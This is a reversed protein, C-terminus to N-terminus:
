RATGADTGVHVPLQNTVDVLFDLAARLEVQGFEGSGHISLMGSAARFESCRSRNDHFWEAFEPRITAPESLTLQRPLTQSSLTTGPMPLDAYVVVVWKRRVGSSVTQYIADYSEAIFRAYNYAAFRLGRYEGSFGTDIWSDAPRYPTHSRERVDPASPTLGSEEPPYESFYEWGHETATLDATRGNFGRRVFKRVIWFILAALVIISIISSFNWYSSM